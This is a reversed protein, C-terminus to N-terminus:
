EDAKVITIVPRVYGNGSASSLYNVKDVDDYAIIYAKTTDKQNALYSNYQAICFPCENILADQKTLSTPVPNNGYIDALTLTRVYNAQSDFTMTVLSGNNKAINLLVNEQIFTELATKYSAYTNGTTEIKDDLVMTVDNGNDKVVVWNLGAYKIQDGASYIRRPLGSYNDSVTQITGNVQEKVKEKIKDLTMKRSVLIALIGFMLSVALILLSYMLTSIAFGKNNLKM